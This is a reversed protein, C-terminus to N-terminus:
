VSESTIITSSNDSEALLYETSGITLVQLEIEGKREVFCFVKNEELQNDFNKRILLTENNLENNLIVKFRGSLKMEEINFYELTNFVELLSPHIEITDPMFRTSKFLIAGMQNIKTMLTQNWDKQLNLFNNFIHPMNDYGKYDWTLKEM